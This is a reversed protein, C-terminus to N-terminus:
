PLTGRLDGYGIRRGWYILVQRALEIATLREAGLETAEAPELTVYLGDERDFTALDLMGPDALVEDLDVLPSDISEIRSVATHRRNLIFHKAGNALHECVRPITEAEREVQHQKRGASPWIWDILHNATIFFDYVPYINLPEAIMRDYDYRMKKFLTQPDRLDFFGGFGYDGPVRPLVTMERINGACAPLLYRALSRNSPSKQKQRSGSVDIKNM